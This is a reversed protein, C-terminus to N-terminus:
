QKNAASLTHSRSQRTPQRRRAIVPATMALSARCDLLTPPSRYRDITQESRETQPKQIAVDAPAAECHRHSGNRAFRPLGSANPPSRYRDLTQESREAHPKQIAADAPAEECHRTSDNRAFRPL